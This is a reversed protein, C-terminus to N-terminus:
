TCRSGDGTATPGDDESCSCCNDVLLGVGGTLARLTGLRFRMPRGEVPCCMQGTKIGLIELDAVAEVIVAESDKSVEKTGVKRISVIYPTPMCLPAADNPHLRLEGQGQTEKCTTVGKIQLQDVVHVTFVDVLIQPTHNVRDVLLEDDGEGQM